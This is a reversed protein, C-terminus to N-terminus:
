SVKLLPTTFSPSYYLPHSLIHIIYTYTSIDCCFGRYLQRTIIFGKFLYLVKSLRLLLRLLCTTRILEMEGIEQVENEGYALWIFWFEENGMYFVSILDEKDWLLVYLRLINNYDEGV